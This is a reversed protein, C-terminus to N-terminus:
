PEPATPNRNNLRRRVLKPRMPLLGFQLSEMAGLQHKAPERSRDCVPSPVSIQFVGGNVKGQHGLAQEIAKTDIGIDQQTGAPPKPAPAKTLAVAQKVSNAAQSCRWARWYADRPSEHLVNSGFRWSRQGRKAIRRDQPRPSTTPSSASSPPVNKTQSGSAGKRGGANEPIGSKRYLTRIEEPPLYGM